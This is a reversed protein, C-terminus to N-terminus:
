EHELQARASNYEQHLRLAEEGLAAWELRFLNYTTEFIQLFNQNRPMTFGTISPCVTEWDMFDNPGIRLKLTDGEITLISDLHFTHQPMDAPRLDFSFATPGYQRVFDQFAKTCIRWELPTYPQITTTM